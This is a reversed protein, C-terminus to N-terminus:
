SDVRTGAEDHVWKGSPPPGSAALRCDEISEWRQCHEYTRRGLLYAPRCNSLQQALKDLITQMRFATRNDDNDNWLSVMAQLSVSCTMVFLAHEHCNTKGKETTIIDEPLKRRKWFVCRQRSCVCHKGLSTKEHYKQILEEWFKRTLQRILERRENDWVEGKKLEEEIRIQHHEFYNTKSWSM